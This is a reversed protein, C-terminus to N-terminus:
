WGLATILIPRIRAQCTSLLVEQLPLGHSPEPPAFDVLLIPNRV